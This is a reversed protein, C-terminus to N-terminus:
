GINPYSAFETSIGLSAHGAPRRVRDRNWENENMRDITVKRM